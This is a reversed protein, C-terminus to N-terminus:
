FPPPSYPVKKASIREKGWWEKTNTLGYTPNDRPYNIDRILYGSLRFTPSVKYASYIASRVKTEFLQRAIPRWTQLAYLTDTFDRSGPYMAHAIIGWVSWQSPFNAASPPRWIQLTYLNGM